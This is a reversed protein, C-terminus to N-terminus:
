PLRTVREGSQALVPFAEDSGTPATYVAGCNVCRWGDYTWAGLTSNSGYFREAVLLGGCRKCAMAGEKAKGVIRGIV